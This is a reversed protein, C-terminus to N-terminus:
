APVLQSYITYTQPLILPDLYYCLCFDLSEGPLITFPQPIIPADCDCVEQSYCDECTLEFTAWSLDQINQREPPDDGDQYFWTCRCDDIGGYVGGSTAPEIPGWGQLNHGSESAPKGIDVEDCLVPDCSPCDPECYLKAYNVALQGYPNFYEWATPTTCNITIVHTGCCQIEFPTLDINHIIWDEPNGGQADYTYVLTGDILVEFDDWEALGDLVELELEWLIHDCCSIPERMTVEIGEMDPLGWTNWDLTMPECGDNRITHPFCYCCGGYADEITHIIPTDWPLGDVTIAQQVDLTTQVENFYTLLAASASIAILILAIGFALAKRPMGRRSKKPPSYEAWVALDNEDPKM